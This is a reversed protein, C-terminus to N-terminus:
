FMHCRRKCIWNASYKTAWEPLPMYGFDLFLGVDNWNWPILWWFYFFIVQSWNGKCSCLAFNRLSKYTSPDQFSNAALKVGCADIWNCSQHAWLAWACANGPAATPAPAGLTLFLHKPSLEPPSNNLAGGSAPNAQVSCRFCKPAACQLFNM